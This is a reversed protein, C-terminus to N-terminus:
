AKTLSLMNQLRMAEHLGPDLTEQDKRLGAQDRAEDGRIGSVERTVIETGVSLRPGRIRFWLKPLTQVKGWLKPLRESNMRIHLQDEPHPQRLAWADRLEKTLGLNVKDIIIAPDSYGLKQVLTTVKDLFEGAKGHGMQLETWEWLARDRDHYAGYSDEM